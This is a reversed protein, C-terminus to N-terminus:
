KKYKHSVTEFQYKLENATEIIEDDSMTSPDFGGYAASAFSKLYEKAEELSFGQNHIEKNENHEKDTYKNIHTLEDVRKIAEDKGLDNLKNFSNLLSEEKSSLTKESISQDEVGMLYAPTTELIKALPELITVPLNEIDNSEYRYITARNKNLKNAIDDVSMGLYKRREKIRMGINM